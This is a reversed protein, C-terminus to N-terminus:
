LRFSCFYFATIVRCQMLMITIHQLTIDGEKIKTTKTAHHITTRARRQLSKLKKAKEIGENCLTHV